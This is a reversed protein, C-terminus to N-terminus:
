LNGALIRVLRTRKEAMFESPECRHFKEDYQAFCMAANQKKGDRILLEILVESGRCFDYPTVKGAISKKAYSIGKEFDTLALYIEALVLNAMRELAVLRSDVAKEEAVKALRLAEFKDGELLSFKARLSYLYGLLDIRSVYTTQKITSGLIPRARELNNQILCLSIMNCKVLFCSHVDSLKRRMRLSYRFAQMADDFKGLTLYLNGLNNASVAMIDFDKRNRAFRMARALSRQALKVDGPRARTKFASALATHINGQTLDDGIKSSWTLYQEFFGIAKDANEHMM